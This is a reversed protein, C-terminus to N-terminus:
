RLSDVWLMGDGSVGIVKGWDQKRTTQQLDCLSADHTERGIEIGTRVRLAPLAGSRDRMCDRPYHMLMHALVEM